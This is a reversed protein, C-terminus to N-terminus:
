VVVFDDFYPYESTRCEHGDEVWQATTRTLYTRPVKEKVCLEELMPQEDTVFIDEAIDGYLGRLVNPCKFEYELSHSNEPQGFEDDLLLAPSLIEGFGPSRMDAVRREKGGLHALFIEPRLRLATAVLEIVVPSLNPIFLLRISAMRLPLRTALDEELARHGSSTRCDYENSGVVMGQDSLDFRHVTDPLKSYRSVSKAMTPHPNTTRAFVRRLLVEFHPEKEARIRFGRYFFWLTAHSTAMNDLKRLRRLYNPVSRDESVYFQEIFNELLTEYWDDQELKDCTQIISQPSADPDHPLQAEIDGPRDLRSRCEISTGHNDMIADVSCNLPTHTDRDKDNRLTCLIQISVVLRLQTRRAHVHMSILVQSRNTSARMARARVGVTLLEFRSRTNYANGLTM